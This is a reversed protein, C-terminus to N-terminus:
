DLPMRCSGFLLMQTLTPTLIIRIDRPLNNKHRPMDKTNSLSQFCPQHLSSVSKSWGCSTAMAALTLVAMCGLCQCDYNQFTNQFPGLIHKHGTAYVANINDDSSLARLFYFFFHCSFPKFIIEKVMM